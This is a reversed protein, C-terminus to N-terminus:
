NDDGESKEEHLRVPLLKVDVIINAAVFLATLAVLIVYVIAQSWTTPIGAIPLGYRVIPLAALFILFGKM